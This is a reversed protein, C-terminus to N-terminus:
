DWGVHRHPQGSRERGSQVGWGRGILEGQPGGGDPDWTTMAYAYDDLGPIGEGPLWDYLTQGCATRSFGALLIVSVWLCFHCGQGTRAM